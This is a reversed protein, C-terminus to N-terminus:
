ESNIKDVWERVMSRVLINPSIDKNILERNTMPSKNNNQIWKLIYEKEYTYGDSLLVPNYFISKSIPCLFNEPIKIKGQEILNTIKNIKEKYKEYNESDELIDTDHIENKENQNNIENNFPIFMVDLLNEMDYNPINDGMTDLLPQYEEQINNPPVDIFFNNILPPTFTNVIPSNFLNQSSQSNYTTSSENRNTINDFTEVVPSNFLNQSSQSTYQGNRDTINNFLNNNFLNDNDIIQCEANIIELPSLLLNSCIDIFHISEPINYLNTLNNSNIYLEEIKPPLGISSLRNNNIKLKILNNFNQLNIIRFNNNSLNIEQIEIPINDPIYELNCYNIKIKYNGEPFPFREVFQSNESYITIKKIESIHIDYNLFDEIEENTIYKITGNIKKIIIM